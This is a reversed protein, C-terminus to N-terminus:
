VGASPTSSRRPLRLFAAMLFFLAGIFTGLQALQVNWANGAETVFAGVASAGFAIAGSMGAWAALWSRSRVRVLRATLITAAIALAGSLVFAVSGAVDPWWVFHRRAAVRHAWLVAGTSLNFNVTGFLEVTAAYCEARISSLEWSRHTSPTSLLLQLLAAGTFFWSGAFCSVNGAAMGDHTTSGPVTGIAFLSSGIMFSYCEARLM